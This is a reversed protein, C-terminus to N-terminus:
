QLAQGSPQRDFVLLGQLNLDDHQWYTRLRTEVRSNINGEPLSVFRYSTPLIHDLSESLNGAAKSIAEFEASEGQEPGFQGIFRVCLTRPIRSVDATLFAVGKVRDLQFLETTFGGLTEVIKSKHRRSFSPAFSGVAERIAETSDVIHRDSSNGDILVSQEALPPVVIVPFGQFYPGDSNEKGM